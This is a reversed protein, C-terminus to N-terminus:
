ISELTNAETPRTQDYIKEFHLSMLECCPRVIFVAFFLASPGLRFLSLSAVLDSPHHTYFVSLITKRHVAAHDIM